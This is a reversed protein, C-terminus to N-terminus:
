LLAHHSKPLTPWSPTSPLHCRLVLMFFSLLSGCPYRPATSSASTCLALCPGELLLLSALVHLFPPRSLLGLLHIPYCRPWPAGPLDKLGGHLSPKWGPDPLLGQLIGPLPVIPGSKCKLLICDGTHSRSGLPLRPSLPCAQPGWAAKSWTPPLPPLSFHHSRPHKSSPIAPIQDHIM